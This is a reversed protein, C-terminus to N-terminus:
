GDDTIKNINDSNEKVRKSLILLNQSLKESMEKLQDEMM